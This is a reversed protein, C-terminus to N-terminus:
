KSGIRVRSSSSSYGPGSEAKIEYDVRYGEPAEARVSASASGHKSSATVTTDVSAAEGAYKSEQNQSCGVLICIAITITIFQRM